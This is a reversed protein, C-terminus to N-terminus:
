VQVVVCLCLFRRPQIACTGRVRDNVNQCACHDSSVRVYGQVCGVKQEWLNTLMDVPAPVGHALVVLSFFLDRTDEYLQDISLGLVPFLALKSKNRSTGHPMWLDDETRKKEAIELHLDRWAESDNPSKRISPLAGAIALALALWGCAEAVQVGTGHVYLSTFKVLPALLIRPSSEDFSEVSVLLLVSGIFLGCSQM